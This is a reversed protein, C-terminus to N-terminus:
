DFKPFVKRDAFISNKPDRWGFPNSVGRWFRKPLPVFQLATVDLGSTWPEFRTMSRRYQFYLFSFLGLFARHEDALLPMNPLPVTPLATAKSVLPGRNSDLWRCVIIYFMQKSNVVNFLRFYLFLPRSHRMKLLAAYKIFYLKNSSDHQASTM